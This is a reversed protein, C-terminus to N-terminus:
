ARVQTDILQLINREYAGKQMVLEDRVNELEQM